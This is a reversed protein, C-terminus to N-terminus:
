NEPAGIDIWIRLLDKLPDSVPAIPPPPMENNSIRIWISSNNRDGPTIGTGWSSGGLLTSPYDVLSLGSVTDDIHCSGCLPFFIQDYVEAYTVVDVDIEVTRVPSTLMGDSAYVRFSDQGTYGPDPLYKLQQSLYIASGHMPQTDIVLFPNPQEDDFVTYPVDATNDRYALVPDVSLTPPTNPPNEDHDCLYFADLISVQGDMDADWEVLPAPDNWIELFFLFDAHNHAGDGSLDPDFPHVLVRTQDSYTLLTGLDLLEVTYTTTETPTAVYHVYPEVADEWYVEFSAPPNLPTATLTVPFGACRGVAPGADVGIQLFVLYLCVVSM